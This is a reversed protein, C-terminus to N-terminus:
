CPLIDSDVNVSLAGCIAHALNICFGVLHSILFFYFHVITTHMIAKYILNEVSFMLYFFCEFYHPFVVVWYILFINFVILAFLM